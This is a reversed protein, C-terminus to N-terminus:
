EHAFGVLSPVLRPDLELLYTWGFNEIVFIKIKSITM